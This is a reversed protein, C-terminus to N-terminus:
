APPMELAPRLAAGLADAPHGVVRPRDTEPLVGAVFGYAVDTASLVAAPDVADM